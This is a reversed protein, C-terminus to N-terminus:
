RRIHPYPDALVVSDSDLLMVNYGRWVLRGTYFFRLLWLRRVSDAKYYSAAGPLCFRQQARHCRRESASLPPLPDLRSARHLGFSHPPPNNSCSLDCRSDEGQVPLLYRDLLSSWVAAVAGRRAAHSALQQNDVLLLYHEMGLRALSSVLSVALDYHSWTSTLLILERRSHRSAALAPLLDRPSHIDRYLLGGGGSRNAHGLSLAAGEM